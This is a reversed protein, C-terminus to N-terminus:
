QDDSVKNVGHNAQVALCRNLYDDLLEIEFERVMETVTKEVTESTILVSGILDPDTISVRRGYRAKLAKLKERNYDLHVLCCDLNVEASVYDQYVTTSTLMEGTPSIIGSRLGGYGIASVFHARCSYAWYAQLLGGHFLAPFLLIDPKAAVYQQRLQDYNLDFCTACGLTGFDCKIISAQTGCVVDLDEM